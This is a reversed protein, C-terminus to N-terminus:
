SGDHFHNYILQATAANIGTVKELDALGAQAVAKATGFAKLLARKRAPGIGSIEDLPNKIFDKKRRARHTGIAFRHAEDRLRQIFYLAPDRPPLRFPEKDRMFFTERGANRDAGKAISILQITNLGMDSLIARAVDFQGRGGDILVLDPMTPIDDAHNDSPSDDQASTEQTANQTHQDKALRAFRRTLVERMMGFDDGASIDTSKINFTRYQSKIFGQAGAVVMAGIAHTGSIHSNDYIEIRRPLTPLDFAQKLAEMLAHQTAAESLKRSLAERANQLAHDILERREGRQPVAIEIKHGLRASLAQTLLSASEVHHSVLILRPSPRDAYFQGLFADLVDAESLQRDARPFYARNGWNQYTRFFFVQICFQGGEQTIAFVDAEAVTRPNIGQEGQVASLAAIRDRLRAAKEYEMHEAAHMMDEALAERVARSKGSLFDRARAVLTQYDEHSIEGTCPGSCRKIQYLLCPRTRHAYYSDTCSRLLFARQLVNVTRNVAWVGAFPGFYDGKRTRAGRHKTLQPAPHDGTLLIYPFSKDDRMLVNFRPKMQKIYNAELLLAEAETRTTVFIMRATLSIMRAIRNSQGQPRTYSTIRKKINRAKGVYLVEDQASIMRYVGPSTPADRVYGRIVDAGQAMHDAATPMDDAIDLAPLSAEESDDGESEEASGAEMDMDQLNMDQLNMDQLNMDQVAVMGKEEAAQSPAPALAPSSRPPRPKHTM